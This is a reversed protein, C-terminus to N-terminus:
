ILKIKKFIKILNYIKGPTFYYNILYEKNIEFIKKFLKNFLKFKRKM